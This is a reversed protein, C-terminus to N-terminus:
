IHQMLKREEPWRKCLCMRRSLERFSGEQNFEYIFYHPEPLYLSNECPPLENPDLDHYSTLLAPSFLLIRNEAHVIRVHSQLVAHKWDVLRNCVHLTEGWDLNVTKSQMNQQALCNCWFCWSLTKCALLGWRAQATNEVKMTQKICRSHLLSHTLNYICWINM